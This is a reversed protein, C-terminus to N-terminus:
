LGSVIGLASQSYIIGFCIGSIPFAFNLMFFALLRHVAKNQSPFLITRNKKALIIPKM